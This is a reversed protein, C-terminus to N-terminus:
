KEQAKRILWNVLAVLAFKGHRNHVMECALHYTDYFGTNLPHAAKIEDTWEDDRDGWDLAQSEISFKCFRCYGGVGCKGGDTHCTQNQESTNM